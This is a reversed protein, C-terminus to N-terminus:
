FSFKAAFQFQRPNLMTRPTGFLGNPVPPSPTPALNACTPGGTGTAFALAQARTQLTAADKYNKPTATGGCIVAAGYVSTVEDVNPRNLLNFADVMLDLRLRERIQFYRSIRLDWSYLHDGYYTNRGLDGIRDTVPNTDGNSDFGAFMTFPRQTVDRRVEHKTYLIRVETKETPAQGEYPERQLFNTIPTAQQWLPDDLTGDMKPARGVRSAQASRLPEQVGLQRQNTQPSSQSYLLRSSAALLILFFLCIGLQPFETRRTRM